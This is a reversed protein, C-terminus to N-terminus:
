AAWRLLSLENGHHRAFWLNHVFDTRLEYRHAMFLDEAPGNAIAKQHLQRHILEQEHHRIAEGFCNM